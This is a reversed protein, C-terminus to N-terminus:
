KYIELIKIERPAINSQRCSLNQDKSIFIYLGIREMERNRNSQNNRSNYRIFEVLDELNARKLNITYPRFELNNNDNLVDLGCAGEVYMERPKGNKGYIIVTSAIILKDLPVYPPIKKSYGIALAFNDDFRIPQKNSKNEPSPIILAMPYHKKNNEKETDKYIEKLIPPIEKRTQFTYFEYRRPYIKYALLYYINGEKRIEYVRTNLSFIYEKEM